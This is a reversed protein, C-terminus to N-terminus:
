REDRNRSRGTNPAFPSGSAPLAPVAEASRVADVVVPDSISYFVQRGAPRDSVLGCDRLCALHGSINAQSGGMRDILDTVRIEGEEALAELMGLRMLFAIETAERDCSPESGEAPDDSPQVVAPRVRTPIQAM